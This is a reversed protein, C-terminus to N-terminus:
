EKSIATIRAWLISHADTQESENRGCREARWICTLNLADGGWTAVNFGVIWDYMKTAKKVVWRGGAVMNRTCSWHARIRLGHLKVPNGNEMTRATPKSPALRSTTSNSAFRFFYYIYGLESKGSHRHKSHKAQGCNNRHPAEKEKTLCKEAFTARLASSYFYTIHVDDKYLRRFLFASSLALVCKVTSPETKVLASARFTPGM